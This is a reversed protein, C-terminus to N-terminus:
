LSPTHCRTGGGSPTRILRCAGVGNISRIYRKYDARNGGFPPNLITDFYRDRFKETDETDTGYTAIGVIKAITLGEIDTIPILNGTQNGKSGTTECMMLYYYLRANDGDWKPSESMVIYNLESNQLSFRTGEPIKKNFEGRVIAYTAENLSLNTIDGFDYNSTIM